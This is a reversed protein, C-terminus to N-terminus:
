NWRAMIRATASEAWLSYIRRGPHFGDSAMDEPLVSFDLPIHDCDAQERAWFRLAHDLRWAREGISSRLPEPLCPFRGVPPLGSILIHGAAFRKRLLEVLRVHQKLCAALSHPATIDNVGTAALAIDYSTSPIVRLARRTDATSWGTQAILKWRIRFRDALRKLLQGTLAQAQEDVGVGAASSDGVLLM